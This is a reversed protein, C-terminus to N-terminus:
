HAPTGDLRELNPDVLVYGPGSEDHSGYDAILRLTTSDAPQWALQGRVGARPARGAM